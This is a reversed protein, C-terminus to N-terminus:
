RKLASLDVEYIIQKKGADPRRMCFSMYWPYYIIGNEEEVNGKCFVYASLLPWKGSEMIHDLAAHKKYDNGSKIEVPRIEAGEQLVFYLEGMSRRDFFRIGFGHAVFEQAFYNELISGMNVSVDGKLLDMQIDEMGSAALLGIDSQYLKLLSAQENLKLPVAPETVNYCPLAVAADSLWIFDSEFERMRAKKSLDALIFRRNKSNLEVPIYDFIRRINEKERDPAYKAIDLRYMRIIDRQIRIVEAIDHHSIYAQVAAPMGGVVLYTYFLKNLTDHIVPDMPKKEKFCKEIDSIIEYSIGNAIFYERLDMPYMQMETEYGVPYSPVERYNIGLLSGSEVVPFRGSDV